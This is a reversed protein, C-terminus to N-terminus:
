INACLLPRFLITPQGNSLINNSNGQHLNLYWGTAPLPTTVGTVMRTENNINGHRDATFDMLMYQVPGQSQCSGLHIHAAHMGPTVGSATLTVTIMQAAPDYVLTAHGQLSGQPFGAELAHLQYPGNGRGLTSTQAIVNTGQGGDLIKVRSGGPISNVTFTASAQGTTDATLTGIPNGHLLVTHSSGPTLGFMAVQVLEQGSPTTGTTVTGTPMAMLNLHLTVKHAVKALFGDTNGNGDVYFGVLDGANNVGNITTTGMGNPDDVTTFGGGPTWTFGHLAGSAATYAGVVENHDNVGLALTSSAGPVALDIFKGGAKLFGDTTGNAPNTYFGAIDGDNNIAAAALSAGPANPDTVSSFSNAKIDYEYGFNTGNASIYFGVAIDHNNVGLLQDVPPTAAAGTPFDATRFNGGSEVFGHNDNVMSANNMSSWFGVTVGKDNLGTVQTQVSGPFNENAYNGQGYPPFLLYGKNPHGQAGSGLYGAIVGENNIGLLQNFTLDNANDLTTFTYATQQAAPMSPMGAMHSAAPKAPAAQAVGAWSAALTTGAVALAGVAAAATIRLKKRDAHSM